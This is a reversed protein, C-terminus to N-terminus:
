ARRLRTSARGPSLRVPRPEPRPGGLSVSPRMASPFPGSAEVRARRGCPLPARARLIERNRQLSAGKTCVRARRSGLGGGKGSLGMASLPFSRRSSSAPAGELPLLGGTLAAGSGTLSM